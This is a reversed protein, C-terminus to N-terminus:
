QLGVNRLFIRKEAFARVLNEDNGFRAHMEPRSETTVRVTVYRPSPTDDVIFMLDEIYGPYVVPDNEGKKIYLIGEESWMEVEFETGIQSRVTYIIGSYYKKPGSNDVEGDEPEVYDTIEYGKAESETFDFETLGRLEEQVIDVTVDAFTQMDNTLRNDVSTELIFANVNFILIILLGLIIPPVILDIQVGM